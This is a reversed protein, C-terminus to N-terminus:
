DVVGIVTGGAFNQVTNGGANGRVAKGAPGGAAAGYTTGPQGFAGGGPSGPTTLTGATGAPADNLICNNFIINFVGGPIGGAGLGAGGGGGLAGNAGAGGGGGALTGFNEITLSLIRDGAFVADGGGSGPRGPSHSAQNCEGSKAGAGGRGGRGYIGGNKKIVVIAGDPLNSLDIAPMGTEDTGTGPSGVATVLSNVVLVYKKYSPDPFRYTTTRNTKITDRFTGCNSCMKNWVGLDADYIEPLHSDTNFIQLGDPVGTIADRQAKTMRPMLVGRNTSRIDLIAKSDVLSSGISVAGGNYYINNLGSWKEPGKQLEVWDNGDFFYFNNFTSDYVILGKAPAAIETRTSRDMRPMLLGKEASSIELQASPNPKTTGIGVNQSFSKVTICFM